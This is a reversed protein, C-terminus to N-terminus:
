PTGGYGACTVAAYAALALPLWSFLLWIMLGAVIGVVTGSTPRKLYSEGAGKLLSPATLGVCLCFVAVAAWAAPSM